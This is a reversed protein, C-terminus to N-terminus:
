RISVCLFSNNKANKPMNLFNWIAVILKKMDARGQVHLLEAEVPCMM